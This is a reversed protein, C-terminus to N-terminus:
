GGAEERKGEVEKAHGTEEAGPKPEGGSTETAGLKGATVSGPAGTNEAAEARRGKQEAGRPEAAPRVPKAEAEAPEM